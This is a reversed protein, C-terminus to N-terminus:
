DEYMTADIVAKLPINLRQLAEIVQAKPILASQPQELFVVQQGPKLPAVKQLFKYSNYILDPLTQDVGSINGTPMGQADAFAEVGQMTFIPIESGYLGATLPERHSSEVVVDPQIQQIKSEAEAKTEPHLVTIAIQEQDRFGAQALASIIKSTMTARVTDNPFAVIVVQKLEAAGASFALAIFLGVCVITTIRTKM